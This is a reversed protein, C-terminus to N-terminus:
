RLLISKQDHGFCRMEEKRLHFYNQWCRATKLSLSRSHLIAERIKDEPYTGFLWKLARQDGENLLREIIQISNRQVDMEQPNVDWFFSYLEIPIKHKDDM